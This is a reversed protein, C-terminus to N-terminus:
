KNKYESRLDEDRQNLIQSVRSKRIVLDYDLGRLRWRLAQKLDPEHPIRTQIEILYPDDILAHKLQDLSWTSYQDRGSRLQMLDNFDAKDGKKNIRAVLADLSKKEEALQKKSAEPFYPIFDLAKRQLRYRSATQDLEDHLWDDLILFFAERFPLTYGHVHPPSVRGSLDIWGLHSWVQNLESPIDGEFQLYPLRGMPHDDGQCCSKLSAGERILRGVYPALSEDVMRGDTFVRNHRHEFYRFHERWQPHFRFSLIIKNVFFRDAEEPIVICFREGEDGQIHLEHRFPNKATAPTVQSYLTGTFNGLGRIRRKKILPIDM